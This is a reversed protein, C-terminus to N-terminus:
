ENRSPSLTTDRLARGKAALPAGQKVNFRGGRTGIGRPPYSVTSKWEAARDRKVHGRNM